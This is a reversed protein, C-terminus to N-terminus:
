KEIEHRLEGMTAMREAFVDHRHISEQNSQSIIVPTDDPLKPFSEVMLRAMDRVCDEVFKPNQHARWVVELEDPRKQVEYITSSQAKEILKIIPELRVGGGPPVKVWISGVGRQNHTAMPICELVKEVAPEDLGEALMMERAKEQVLSQACPCATIGTVETGLWDEVVVDGDKRRSVSRALVEVAEDSEVRTSPTQRRVMLTSRMKVEARSAYDHKEMLLIVINHCLGEIELVPKRFAENIVENAAEFNRSLNAGKINKPLDVYLDFSSILVIPRSEERAIEVLKRVGSVGVRNLGVAVDPIGAAIDPLGPLNM